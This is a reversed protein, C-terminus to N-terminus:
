TGFVLDANGWEIISPLTLVPKWPLPVGKGGTRRNGFLSGESRGSRQVKVVGGRKKETGKVGNFAPVKGGRAPERGMVRKEGKWANQGVM